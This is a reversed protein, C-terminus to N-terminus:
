NTATAIDTISIIFSKRSAKDLINASSEPQETYIQTNKEM